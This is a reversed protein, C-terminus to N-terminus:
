TSLDAAGAAREMFFREPTESVVRFGHRLYLAHARTNVRLVRLRLPKRCRTAQQIVEQVVRSGIGHGRYRERLYLKVLWIYEPLDEIAVLGAAEGDVEIFRHTAPDYNTRHREIQEDENWAGWTQEVYERMAERTIEYALDIDHAIADRMAVVSGWAAVRSGAPQEAPAGTSPRSALDDRQSYWDLVRLARLTIWRSPRGEGEDTEIPMRGPYQTDLLWRGEDDRKSTLLEIAEAVREDPAVGARRLYELGRLVDYHWWTPFAFRAWSAGGKRDREIAEGTSKRRFLRRELLYAQGRRRAETVEPRAGIAQEYELLAELVCITTNFSSRTSGKEAECNWGGDPLQEALLRGVIGHVDQGFCAGIAAVQGNICPEIEGAFFPNDDAEPPGSGRWTVLDRVRGVADRAEDSAPDLGMERLLWLVHMTSDWGRNWAAGAWRGDPAQLALLQAGAGETAVRRREAQVETASADTLDRLVQWRISPDSDLLWRMIASTRPHRHRTSAANGSAAAVDDADRAPRVSADRTGEWDAWASDPLWFFLENGDPDRIVVTPAGWSVVTTEIRRTVVHRRFAEVQDDDIGTFVRGHGTRPRTGDETQNLILQLGLLSVQCVFARGEEQHNWDLSFGLTGTYYDLSREADEVFFVARGFLKKMLGRPNYRAAASTEECAPGQGALPRRPLL